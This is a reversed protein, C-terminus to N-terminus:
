SSGEALLLNSEAGNYYIGKGFPRQRNVIVCYFRPDASPNSATACIRYIEPPQVEYTSLRDLDKQFQSPAHAGIYEEARATADNLDNLDKTIVPRHILGGGLIVATIAITTFAGAYNNAVVKPMDPRVRRVLQGLTAALAVIAILNLVAGFLAGGAFSGDSDGTIPLQKHILGDALTLVVFLPWLWAGRLRWRLRVLPAADM